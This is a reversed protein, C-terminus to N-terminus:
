RGASLVHWVGVLGQSLVVLPHWLCALWTRLRGRLHYREGLWGPGPFLLWHLLRIVDRPRDAIALHLLYSRHRSPPLQRSLVQQPDMVRRVLCRQWVAPRLVELVHKPLAIRLSVSAAELPFYCSARLRFQRARAVFADWPFANHHDLLQGIDKFGIPHAFGHVTLHICLHLLMDPPSLQLVQTGDLEFPQANLWLAETDLACLRRFWESPTLEWHLEILAHESRRFAMEGTFETDFPSFPQRREPVFRFGAAELAIRARARDVPRVLLDADSMPRDAISSYVALALAAGKLVIVPIGAASLSRLAHGLDNYILINRAVTSLSEAKM